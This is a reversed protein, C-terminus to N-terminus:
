TCDKTLCVSNVRKPRSRVSKSSGIPIERKFILPLKPGDCQFYSPAERDIDQHNKFLLIELLINRLQYNRSPNDACVWILEGWKETPFVALMSLYTQRKSRVPFSKLIIRVLQFSRLVSNTTARQKNGIKCTSLVWRIEHARKRKTTPSTKWQTFIKFEYDCLPQNIQSM